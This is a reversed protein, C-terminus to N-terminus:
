YRVHVSRQRCIQNSQTTDSLNNDNLGRMCVKLTYFMGTKSGMGDLAATSSRDYDVSFSSVGEAITNITGNAAFTEGNWPRFNSYMQFVGGSTVEFAYATTLLYRASSSGNVQTVNAPWTITLTSPTPNAVIDLYADGSGAGNNWRYSSCGTPDLDVKNQNYLASTLITNGPYIIGILNNAYSYNAGISRVTTGSINVDESWGPIYRNMTANWDGQRGDVDVAIVGITRENTDNPDPPGYCTTGSGRNLRVISEAIGNEFYPAIQELARDAEAVRKNVEVSVVSIDFYEKITALAVGGIIGLIVIVFLLEILTFAKNVRNM